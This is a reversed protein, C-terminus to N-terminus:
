GFLPLELIRQLAAPSDNEPIEIRYDAQAYIERRANYLEEFRQPDRALPRHSSQAVRQRVVEWACDLWISIGNHRILDLNQPQAFTGGGLALVLPKGMQVRRVRQRLAATEITRFAEESQTEFIQSITTKQEAEIDHDLDAFPWGIERALLRGVTSKGCGMFGVLYIGPTRKLTLIM